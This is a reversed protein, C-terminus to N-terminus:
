SEKLKQPVGKLIESKSDKENGSCNGDNSLHNDSIVM